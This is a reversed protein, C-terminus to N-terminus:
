FDTAWIYPYTYVEFNLVKKKFGSIQHLKYVFRVAEVYSTSPLLISLTEHDYLGISDLNRVQKFLEKMFYKAKFKTIIETIPINVLSFEIKSYNTRDCEYHIFVNFDKECHVDHKKLLPSFKEIFTSNSQGQM